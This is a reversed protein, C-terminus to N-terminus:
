AFLARLASSREGHLQLFLLGFLTLPLRIHCAVKVWGSFM